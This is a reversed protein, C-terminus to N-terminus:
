GRCLVRHVDIGHEVWRNRSPWNPLAPVKLHVEKGARAGSRLLYHRLLPPLDGQLLSSDTHDLAAALVQCVRELLSDQVTAPLTTNPWALLVAQLDDDSFGM